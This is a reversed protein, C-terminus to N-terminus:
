GYCLRADTETSNLTSKLPPDPEKQISQSDDLGLAALDIGFKAASEMTRASIWDRNEPASFVPPPSGNERMVNVIVKFIKERLFRNRIYDLASRLQM